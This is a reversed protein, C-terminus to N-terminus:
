WPVSCKTLKRADTAEPSREKLANFCTLFREVLSLITQITEGCEIVVM